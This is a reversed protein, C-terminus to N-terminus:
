MIFADELDEKAVQVSNAEVASISMAFAKPVEEDHSYRRDHSGVCVLM